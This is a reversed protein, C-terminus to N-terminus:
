VSFQSNVFVTFGYFYLKQILIYALTFIFLYVAVNIDVGILLGARYAHHLFFLQWIYISNGHIQLEYNM